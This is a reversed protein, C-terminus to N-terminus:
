IHLLLGPSITGLIVFALARGSGLKVAFIFAHLPPQLRQLTQLSHQATVPM